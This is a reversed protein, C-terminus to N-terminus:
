PRGFSRIRWNEFSSFIKMDGKTMMVRPLLVANSPRPRACFTRESLKPKMSTSIRSAPRIIGALKTGYKVALRQDRVSFIWFFTFGVVDSYFGDHCRDPEPAICEVLGISGLTTDNQYFFLLICADFPVNCLQDMDMDQGSQLGVVNGKFCICKSTLTEM